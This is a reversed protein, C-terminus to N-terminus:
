QPIFTYVGNSYCIEGYVKGTNGNSLTVSQSGSYCVPPLSPSYVDPMAYRQGMVYMRWDYDYFKSADVVHNTLYKWDGGQELENGTKDFGQWLSEFDSKSIESFNFQTRILKAETTLAAQTASDLDPYFYINGNRMAACYSWPVSLEPCFKFDWDAVDDYRTFFWNGSNDSDYKFIENPVFSASSAPYNSFDLLIQKGYDQPNVPETERDERVYFCSVDRQYVVDGNKDEGLILRRFVGTSSDFDLYYRGNRYDYYNGSAKLGTSPFTPQPVCTINKKRRVESSAEYKSLAIKDTLCTKLDEQWFQNYKQLDGNADRFTYIGRCSTPSAQNKDQQGKEDNCASLLILALISVYKM